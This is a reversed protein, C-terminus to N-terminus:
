SPRAEDETKWRAAFAAPTEMALSRHPRVNNFEWRWDDVVVQAELRNEFVEMNLLEERMRGNYSEIYPNQWPSGPEIHETTTSRRACWRALAHSIFEPGNDCRVFVSAGCEKVTEELVQIVKKADISYGVEGAIGEHTFEDTMNLIKLPRGKRTQDFEFDMAWVHNPYSAQINGPSRRGTRRRRRKRRVQLNEERWIRRVRKRNIRLGQDMLLRHQKRYGWKPHATALTRLRKRLHEEDPVLSRRRRQTSRHQGVLACARRESVGFRQQLRVVAERRREPGVM